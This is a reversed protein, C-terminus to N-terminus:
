EELTNHKNYLINYNNYNGIINSIDNTNSNQIIENAKGLSLKKNNVKDLLKIVPM